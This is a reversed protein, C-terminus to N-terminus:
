MGHYNDWRWRLNERDVYDPINIHSPIARGYDMRIRDSTIVNGETDIRIENADFLTHIDVRMLFGNSVDYSGHYKVPYIHAAELIEKARVETIICCNSVSFLNHRFIAQASGRNNARARKRDVDSAIDSINGLQRSDSLNALSVLLKNKGEIIGVIEDDLEFNYYYQEDDNSVGDKKIMFGYYSLFLLFERAMRKDNARPCCDPWNSIDLSDARFLKIAQVYDDITSRTDGSLPIIINILEFTTIYANKDNYEDFLFLNNSSHLERTISLILKLPYLHLQHNYWMLCEEESQIAPNPPQLSMITAAAFESQTIKQNAVLRGFPTLEILGKKSPHSPILGLAKWYQGSNRIINREGVRRDLDINVGTGDLDNNLDILENEFEISSYKLGRGELRSMRSLIGLLVVPDNIGETCQLCAWQWKFNQFPLQPPTQEFFYTM